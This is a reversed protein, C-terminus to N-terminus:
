QKSPLIGFVQCILVLASVLVLVSLCRQFWVKSVMTSGLSGVILGVYAGLTYLIYWNMDDLTGVGFVFYYFVRPNFFSLCAATSRIEDKGINLMQTMIMLPPGTLGLMSGALGSLSGFFFIWKFGVMYGQSVNIELREEFRACCYIRPTQFQRKFIFQLSVQPNNPDVTFYVNGHLLYWIIKLLFSLTQKTSTYMHLIVTMPNFFYFIKKKKLSLDDEENKDSDDENNKILCSSSSESKLNEESSIVLSSNEYDLKGNNMCVDGISKQLTCGYDNNM